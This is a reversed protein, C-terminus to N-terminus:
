LTTSVDRKLAMDLILFFAGVTIASDAVNFAWFHWNLWYVDIFDIVYGATVRDILYFSRFISHDRPVKKLPTSPFLRAIMKRVSNDFASNAISSNDDILMFGGYSLYNRLVRLAGNSFPEFSGNGAMYTMPYEYLKPDTLKLILPDRRVEVSTRKAVKVLLSQLAEPRPNFKGGSYRIQPIRLRSYDAGAFSFASFSFEIIIQGVLM